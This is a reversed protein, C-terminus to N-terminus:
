ILLARRALHAMFMLVAECVWVHSETPVYVNCVFMLEHSQVSGRMDVHDPAASCIMFMVHVKTSVCAVFILVAGSGLLFMSASM